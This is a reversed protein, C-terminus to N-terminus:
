EYFKLNLFHIKYAQKVSRIAIIKVKILKKKKNFM